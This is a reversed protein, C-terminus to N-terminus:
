AHTLSALARTFSVLRRVSANYRRHASDEGARALLSYLRHEPEAIEHAPVEVGLRRLRAAFSAVLLSERSEVGLALDQLGAAVLDGGPLTLLEATELPM